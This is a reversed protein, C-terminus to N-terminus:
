PVQLGYWVVALRDFDDPRSLINSYRCRQIFAETHAFIAGEDFDWPRNPSAAEVAAKTRAYSAKWAACADMGQLCALCRSHATSCSSGLLLTRHMAPQMREPM